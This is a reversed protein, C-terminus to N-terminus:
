GVCTATCLFICGPESHVADMGLYAQHLVAGSDFNNEEHCHFIIATIRSSDLTTLPSCSSCQYPWVILTRLLQESHEETLENRHGILEGRTLVDNSSV